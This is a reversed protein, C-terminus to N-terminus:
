QRSEPGKEPLGHRAMATITLPVNTVTFFINHVARVMVFASESELSPAKITATGNNPLNSALTYDFTKGGDASLLIDVAGCNVPPKDTNAVTWTIVYESGAIWTTEEPNQIEFPGASRHVNIQSSAVTIRGGGAANDRVTLNFRLTADESPLVQWRPSEDTVLDELLPFYRHGVNSPPFSRFLPGNTFSSRPPMPVDTNANMQEWCYTLDDGDTDSAKASLVFPTSVPIDASSTMRDIHPWHGPVPADRACASSESTVFGLIEELSASHFYPSNHEQVNPFCIGAYSMITSGSGPEVATPPYQQCRNSMTHHAGVQHGMEHAIYDIYFADGEPKAAGTVGQAKNETSCVGSNQSIGDGNRHVFFLHGIDYNETGIIADITKQNQLMMQNANTVTYPDTAPDTFVIKENDPIIVFKISLEKEYLQNVREIAEIQAAMAKEKSGYYQTYEGTAALALRYIRLRGDGLQKQDIPALAMKPQASSIDFKSPVVNSPIPLRNACANFSMLIIVSLM